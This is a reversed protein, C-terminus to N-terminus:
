AESREYRIQGYLDPHRLAVWRQAEAEAREWNPARLPVQAIAGIEECLSLFQRYRLKQKVTFAHAYNLWFGPMIDGTLRAVEHEILDAIEAYLRPNYPRIEFLWLCARVYIMLALFQQFVLGSVFTSLSATNKYRELDLALQVPIDPDQKYYPANRLPPPIHNIDLTEGTLLLVPINQALALAWEYTVYISRLSDRSAILVLAFAQRLAEDIAPNWVAGGPIVRTDVWIADKEFHEELFAALADQQATDERKYSIYIHTM